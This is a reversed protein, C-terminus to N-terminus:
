ICAKHFGKGRQHWPIKPGCKRVHCCRQLQHSTLSIYVRILPNSMGSHEWFCFGSLVKWFLIVSIVAPNGKGSSSISCNWRIKEFGVNLDILSDLYASIKVSKTVVTFLEPPHPYFLLSPLRYYNLWPFLKLDEPKIVNFFISKSNYHYVLVM